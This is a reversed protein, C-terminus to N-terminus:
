PQPRANGDRKSSAFNPLTAGPTNLAPARLSWPSDGPVTTGAAPGRRSPKLSMETFVVSLVRWTGEKVLRRLGLQPKIM